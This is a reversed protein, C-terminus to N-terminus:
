DLLREMRIAPFVIGPRLIMEMSGITACGMAEYFPVATRTAYCLLHAIGASQATEFVRTMVARAVGQRTMRDDTVVHRIHGLEPSARGKTWGGAGVVQGVDDEAVYYTGSALLSPQARSILPLATVLVSPPYDPKLLRPYARALVADVAALDGSRATRVAIALANERFVFPGCSM